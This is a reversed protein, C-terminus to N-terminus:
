GTRDNVPPDTNTENPKDKGGLIERGKTWAKVGWLFGLAALVTEPLPQLDGKKWSIAGWMCLVGLSWSLLNLRSSSQPKDERFFGEFSEFVRQFLATM